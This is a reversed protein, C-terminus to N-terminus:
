GRRAAEKIAKSVARKVRREVRPRLSLFSPMLFPQASTLATGFEVFLGYWGAAERGSPFIGVYRSIGLRTSVRSFIGRPKFGDSSLDRRVEIAGALEGTDRPAISSARREIELASKDLASNIQAAAEPGLSRFVSIVRDEGELGKSM